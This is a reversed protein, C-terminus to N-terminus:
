ARAFVKKLAAIVKEITEEIDRRSHAASICAADVSSPPLYIGNALLDHFFIAFRQADIRKSDTFNKVPIDCFIIAFMSGARQLQIPLSKAEVFGAIGAFLEAARGELTEYIADDDLLRLVEIGGAMTVPNGSFTGAQYVDGIPMLADMIDRRGGFAGIPMGGGLAKGFTTLDPKVKFLAQAGGKAVRLGTLVEDFILVVQHKDCLARVGQLFGPEPLVVGMSGCVPEIIVAAVEGSHEKLTLELKELDNFPTLVTRNKTGALVGSSSQHTTSGLVSDSHGHYAGEFMVVVDRHTFGRALRIASMVAETGSSVFRIQEISPFHRIVSKAMELELLTPAGFVAGNNVAEQCAKVVLPHSHGLIAPGWAGLYDIYENGDIDTVKSGLAEKLFITHGGVEHFSRFPSNVGGPILTAIENSATKSNETKAAQEQLNQSKGM